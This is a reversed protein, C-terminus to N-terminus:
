VLYVCFLPRYTSQPPPASDTTFLIQEGASFTSSSLFESLHSAAPLLDSVPPGPAQASHSEVVIREFHGDCHPCSENQEPSQESRLGCCSQGMKNLSHQGSAAACACVPMTVFTVALAAYIAVFLKM